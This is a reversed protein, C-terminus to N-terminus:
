RETSHAELESSGYEKRITTSGENRKGRFNKKSLLSVIKLERDSYPARHWKTARGEIWEHILNAQQKKEVLFDKVLPLFKQLRRFGEITVVWYEKTTESRPNYHTIHYACELNDLLKCFTEVLEKSTNAMRFGPKFDQREGGRKWIGFCGEGDIIGCMWGLEFASISPQQNDMTIDGQNDGLFYLFAKSTELLECLKELDTTSLDRREL